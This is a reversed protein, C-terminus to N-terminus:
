PLVLVYELFVGDMPVLDLFKKVAEVSKGPFSKGTLAALESLDAIYNMDPIISNDKVRFGEVGLVAIDNKVCYEMLLLSDSVSFLPVNGWLMTPLGLDGLPLAKVDIAKMM